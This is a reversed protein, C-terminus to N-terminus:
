QWRRRSTFVWIALAAAGGYMLLQKTDQSLGVAVGPTYASVDLPPLGARAREIQVDLLEKQQVTALISPIIRALADLWSEGPTQVQEIKETISPALTELQVAYDFPVGPQDYLAIMAQNSDLM